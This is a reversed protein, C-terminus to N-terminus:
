GIGGVFYTAIPFTSMLWLTGSVILAALLFVAAGVVTCKVVELM